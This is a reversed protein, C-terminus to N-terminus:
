PSRAVGAGIAKSLIAGILASAIVAGLHFPLLHSLERDACLAHLALQGALAGTAAVAAMSLPAIGPSLDLRGLRALALAGGAPLLAAGLELLACNVGHGHGAGDGDLFALLASIGVAFALAIGADRPTRRTLALATRVITAALVAISLLWPLEHVWPLALLPVVFSAVALAAVAGIWPTISAVGRPPLGAPRALEAHVAERARLLAEPAPPPPAGIEDMVALTAHASALAAECSPCERAHAEARAREPDSEDLMVLGAVEHPDLHASM